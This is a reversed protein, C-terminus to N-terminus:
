RFSRCCERNRRRMWDIMMKLDGFDGVGCSGASRLSFVPIQTGACKIPYIDFHAERLTYVVMEGDNLQPIDISRNSGTEWFPTVDDEKDLAVFKFEVHRNQLSRQTSIWSGSMSPISM